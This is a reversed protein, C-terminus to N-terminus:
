LRLPFLLLRLPSPSSPSFPLFPFRTEAIREEFEGEAGEEGKRNEM